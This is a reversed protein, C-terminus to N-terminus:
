FVLVLIAFHIAFFLPVLIRFKWHRTKHHFAFMGFLSGVSGGIAGFLLLKFESIRQKKNEALKKDKYYVFCATINIIIIYVTIVFASYPFM